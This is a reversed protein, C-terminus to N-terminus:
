KIGKLKRIERQLRIIKLTQDVRKPNQLQETECKECYWSIPDENFKKKEEYLAILNLVVSSDILDARMCTDKLDAINM